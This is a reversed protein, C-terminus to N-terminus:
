QFNLKITKLIVLAIRSKRNENNEPTMHWDKIATLSFKKVEKLTRPPRRKMYNVQKQCGTNVDGCLDFAHM